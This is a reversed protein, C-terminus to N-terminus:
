FGFLSVTKEEKETEQKKTQKKSKEPKKFAEKKILATLHETIENLSESTVTELINGVKLAASFTNSSPNFVITIHAEVEIKKPEKKKTNEQKETQQTNAQQKEEKKAEESIQAFLSM